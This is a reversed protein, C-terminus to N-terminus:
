RRKSRAEIALLVLVCRGNDIVNIGAERAAHSAQADEAGPQMWINKVGAAVAQQVVQRTVSPPTVISLSEPVVPLDAITAYATQGEIEPASPNLPYATRGSAVLAQFVKNGYKSRDRSAGAVAFIKAAFFKAAPSETNEQM